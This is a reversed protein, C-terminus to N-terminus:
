CHTIGERAPFLSLAVRDGPWLYSTEWKAAHDGQAHKHKAYGGESNAFAQTDKFERNFRKVAINAFTALPYHGTLLCVAKMELTNMQVLTHYILDQYFTTQDEGSKRFYKENWKAKKFGM